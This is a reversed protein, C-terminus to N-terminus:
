WALVIDKEQCTCPVEDLEVEEPILNDQEIGDLM